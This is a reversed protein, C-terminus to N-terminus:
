KKRVKVFLELFVKAGYSEEIELRSETGIKKLMSGGKGIVVKKQSDREVIIDAQITIVNKTTNDRLSRVDIHISHPVEQYLNILAKERILEGIIFKNNMDTSDTKDYFPPHEKMLKKIAKLVLLSDKQKTGNIPIIDKYDPFRKTLEEILPIVKKRDIKDVKSIVIILSVDKLEKLQKIIFEDEDRIKTRADVLFLIVDVGKASKLSVKNMEKTLTRTAKHIGPTDLFVIQYDEDNYIGKIQNRTTQPKNTVISVKEMVISNVLTSKGVNPKGILTVFGAKHKSM